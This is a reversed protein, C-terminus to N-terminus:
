ANIAMRLKAEEEETFDLCSFDEDLLLMFPSNLLTVALALNTGPAIFLPTENERFAANWIRKKGKVSTSFRVSNTESIETVEAIVPKLIVKSRLQKKFQIDKM